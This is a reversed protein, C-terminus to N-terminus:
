KCAQYVQEHLWHRTEASVQVSPSEYLRRQREARWFRCRSPQEQREIVATVGQATASAAYHGRYRSDPRDNRLALERRRDDYTLMPDSKAMWSRAVQDTPACPENQYSTAGNAAVCKHVQQAGAAAPLVMLLVAVFRIM